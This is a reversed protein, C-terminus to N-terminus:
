WLPSAICGWENMCESKLNRIRKSIVTDNVELTYLVLSFSPNKFTHAMINLPYKPIGTATFM